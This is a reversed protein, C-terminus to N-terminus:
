RGVLDIWWETKRYLNNLNKLDPQEVYVAMGSTNVLTIAAGRYAGEQVDFYRYFLEAVSQLDAKEEYLKPLVKDYHLAFGPSIIETTSSGM